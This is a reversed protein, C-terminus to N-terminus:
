MAGAAALPTTNVTSKYSDLAAGISGAEIFVDAVGKMYTQANGGLWTASLQEDITPFTFTSMTEAAAAEEMGADKAILPLMEAHNAPDSWM